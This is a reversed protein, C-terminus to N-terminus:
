LSAEAQKANTRRLLVGALLGLTMGFIGHGVWWSWHPTSSYLTQIKQTNIIWSILIAQVVIGYAAGLLVAAVLNPRPGLFAALAVGVLGLILANGMHGVIGGFV